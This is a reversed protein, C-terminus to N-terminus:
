RNVQEGTPSDNASGGYRIRDDPFGSPSSTPGSTPAGQPQNMTGPGSPTTSMPPQTDRPPTTRQRDPRDQRPRDPMTPRGDLGPIGRPGYGGPGSPGPGDDFGGGPPYPRDFYPGRDERESGRFDPAANPDYLVERPDLLLDNLKAIGPSSITFTIPPAGAFPVYAAALPRDLTATQGGAEVDVAGVADNGQRRPGPGRLVVLTATAPDHRVNGRIDREGRAIAVAEPGVVGDLLTGRIGITAAPAKISKGGASGTRGSMFRFAGKAVSASMSSGKPDYVFRDITLRANAGVTFKSRDLLLLQLRSGGGTQVQDAMAVRQRLAAKAFQRAASGKIQVDNVVAAAIGVISPAAASVSGGALGAALLLAAFARANLIHGM